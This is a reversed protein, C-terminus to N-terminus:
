RIPREPRKPRLPTAMLTRIKNEVYNCALRTIVESQLLKDGEIIDANEVIDTHPDVWIMMM